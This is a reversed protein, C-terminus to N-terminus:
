KESFSKKHLFAWKISEIIVIVIASATLIWGWEWWNLAQTELFDQAFPLYLAVLQLAFGGAVAILLWPNKFLNDQWIPKKLSRCSFVYLLSDIGLMAFIITRLRELPM